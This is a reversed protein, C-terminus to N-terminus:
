SKTKFCNLLVFKTSDSRYHLELASFMEKQLSVFEELLQTSEEGTEDATVGFM